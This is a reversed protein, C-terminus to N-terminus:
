LQRVRYLVREMALTMIEKETMQPTIGELQGGLLQRSDGGKGLTWWTKRVSYRVCDPTTPSRVITIVFGASSTIPM